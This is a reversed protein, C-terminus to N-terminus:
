VHWQEGSAMSGETDWSIPLSLCLHVDDRGRKPNDRCLGKERSRAASRVRRVAASRAGAKLRRNKRDIALFTPRLDGARVGRPEGILRYAVRPRPRPKGRSIQM